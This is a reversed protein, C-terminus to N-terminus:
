AIPYKQLRLDKKTKKKDLDEENEDKAAESELITKNFLSWLEFIDLVQKTNIQHESLAIMSPLCM